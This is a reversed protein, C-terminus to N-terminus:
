NIGVYHSPNLLEQGTLLIGAAPSQKFAVPRGPLQPLRGCLLITHNSFLAFLLGSM